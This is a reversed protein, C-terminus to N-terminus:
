FIYINKKLKELDDAESSSDFLLLGGGVHQDSHEDGRFCACHDLILLRM